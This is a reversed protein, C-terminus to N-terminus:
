GRALQRSRLAGHQSVRWAGDSCSLDLGGHASPPSAKPEGMSLADNCLGIYGRRVALIADALLEATGAEGGDAAPALFLLSAATSTCGM